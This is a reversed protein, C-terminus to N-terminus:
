FNILELISDDTSELQALIEEETYRKVAPTEVLKAAHARAYNVASLARAAQKAANSAQEKEAKRTLFADNLKKWQRRAKDDMYQAPGSFENMAAKWTGSTTPLGKSALEYAAVVARTLNVEADNEYSNLYEEVYSGSGKQVNELARASSQVLQDFSLVNADFDPAKVPKEQPGEEVEEVTFLQTTAPFYMNDSKWQKRRERTIMGGDALAKIYKKINRESTGYDTAYTKQHKFLGEGEKNVWNSAVMFVFFAFAAPNEKAFEDMCGDIYAAPDRKTSEKKRSHVFEYVTGLDNEGVTRILNNSELWALHSKATKFSLGFKKGLFASTLTFDRLGEYELKMRYYTTLAPAGLFPKIWALEIYAFKESM